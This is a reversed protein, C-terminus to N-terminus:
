NHENLNQFTALITGWRKNELIAKGDSTWGVLVGCSQKNRGAKPNTAWYTQGIVYKGRNTGQGRITM